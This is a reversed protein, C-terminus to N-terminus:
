VSPQEQARVGHSACSGASPGCLASFVVSHTRARHARAAGCVQLHAPEAAPDSAARALPMVARSFCWWNSNKVYDQLRILERQLRLLERFYTHRDIADRPQRVISGDTSLRRFELGFSGSGGDRFLESQGLWKFVSM